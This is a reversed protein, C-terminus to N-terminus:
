GLPLYHTIEGIIKASQSFVKDWLGIIAQIEM